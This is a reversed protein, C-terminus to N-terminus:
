ACRSRGAPVGGEPAAGWAPWRGMAADGPFPRFGAGHILRDLRGTQGLISVGVLALWVAVMGPMLLGVRRPRTPAPAVATTRMGLAIDVGRARLPSEIWRYNLEAIAVLLVLATVIFRGAFASDFVTGPPEIRFWMERTFYFVPIHILYLGYSRVGIWTMVSKVAGAPLVFDRDFSALLVLGGCIVAIRGSWFILFGPPGASAFLFALLLLAVLVRAVAVGREPVARALRRYSAHTSWLGILVGLFLGDTRTFAMLLPFFLPPALWQALIIPVVVIPVFKRFILILVPFLIYFQEELSLTWYQFSAGYPRSMFLNAM